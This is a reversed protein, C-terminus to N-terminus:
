DTSNMFDDFDYGRFSLEDRFIQLIEEHADHLGTKYEGDELENQNFLDDDLIRNIFARVTDKSWKWEDM